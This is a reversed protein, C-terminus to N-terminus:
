MTVKRLALQFMMKTPTLGKVGVFDYRINQSLSNTHPTIFLFEKIGVCYLSEM